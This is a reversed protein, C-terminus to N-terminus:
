RRHDRRDTDRRIRVPVPRAKPAPTLFVLGAALLALAVIALIM